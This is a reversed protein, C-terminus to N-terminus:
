VYSQQKNKVDFFTLRVKKRKIENCFNKEKQSLEMQIPQKLNDRNLLSYKDYATFTHVFLRLM